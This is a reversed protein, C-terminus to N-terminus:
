HMNPLVLAQGPFIVDPNQLANMKTLRKVLSAVEADSLRTGPPFPIRNKVITWLSEGKKVTYNVVHPINLRIGVPLAGANAWQPTSAKLEEQPIGFRDSLSALTEGKKVLHRYPSFDPASKRTVTTPRSIGKLQVSSMTAPGQVLFFYLGKTTPGCFSRNGKKQAV